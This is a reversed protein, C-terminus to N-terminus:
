QLRRVAEPFTLKELRMLYDIANNGHAGCAGFCHYSGNSYFVFSPTREQHFPCRAKFNRGSRILRDSFLEWTPYERAQQIQTDTLKNPNEKTQTLASYIGSLRDLEADIGAIKTKLQYKIFDLYVWHHKYSFYEIKKKFSDPLTRRRNTLEVVKEHIIELITTKGSTEILYTPTHRPSLIDHEEKLAAAYEQQESEAIAERMAEYNFPSHPIEDYDIKLEMDDYKM